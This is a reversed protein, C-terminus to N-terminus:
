TAVRCDQEPRTDGQSSCLDDHGEITGPGQSVATARITGALFTAGGAQGTVTWVIVVSEVRVMRGSAARVQVPSLALWSVM